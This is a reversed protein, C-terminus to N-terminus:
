ADSLTLQTGTALSYEGAANAAVDGSSIAASGRFVAGATKWVSFYTVSQSASLGTVAVQASLARASTSAASFTAASLGAGLANSTGAAGPDGSHLRIADVDLADLMLNKAAETFAM